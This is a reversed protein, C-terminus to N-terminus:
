SLILMVASALLVFLMGAPKVINRLLLGNGRKPKNSIKTYEVQRNLMEQKYEKKEKANLDNFWSIFALYEKIVENVDGMRKMHGYHMWIVRECFNKVQSASHSIFFITKGEAKFERMKAMCKEYFTSDGVSLAEDIVLVDPNTHVSIAFGLRSKMGSSYNKVPQYIFDGIDAFDMIAPKLKEIEQKNLGHMLCKLEINEIGSLSANLGASIAILSTEGYIEIRGESQPIVQSLINSLTSKGSGNLGIIGITEGQYVKFSVDKVACFQKKTQRKKAFVLDLLKDSQKSYMNFKKSVNEFIVKELM